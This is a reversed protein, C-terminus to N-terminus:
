SFTSGNRYLVTHAPHNVANGRSTYKVNNPLKINLATINLM